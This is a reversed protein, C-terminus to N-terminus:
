VTECNPAEAKTMLTKQHLKSSFGCFKVFKNFSCAGRARSMEFKRTLEQVSFMGLLRKLNYIRHVHVCMRCRCKWSEKPSFTSLGTTAPYKPRNNIDYMRRKLAHAVNRTGDTAILKGDILGWGKLILTLERLVSRFVNRYTERVSESLNIKCPGPRYQLRSVTQCARM